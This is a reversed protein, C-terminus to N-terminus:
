VLAHTAADLERNAKADDHAVHAAEAVRYHKIAKTWKENFRAKDCSAKVSRMKESTTNLELNVPKQKRPRELFILRSIPVTHSPAIERRKPVRSCM